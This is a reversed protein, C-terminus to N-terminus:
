VNSLDIDLIEDLKKDIDEMDVKEKKPEETKPEEKKEETKEEVKEEVPAEEKVEEVKEEASVEETKVVEESKAVEAVAEETKEVKEVEVPKAESVEQAPKEEKRPATRTSSSRSDSNRRPAVLDDKNQMPLGFKITRSKQIAPNHKQVLVRLLEPILLLKNQIALVVEPEAEFYALNFYGYRIHKIPYALRRKEIKEVSLNAGGNDEIVKSVKEVLPDVEDESLTGPLILLLEYNQM